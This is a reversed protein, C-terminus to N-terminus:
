YPTKNFPIILGADAIHVTKGTVEQVERQFRKADSNGDSLHILVINNVQSLDNAHLLDKCNDISLHSQIVRDRVFKPNEGDRVRQDLIKDCYNAEVIMNNLGSFRFPSYVTDTLFLVTGCEDHRILYGVPEPTDHIIKFAIVEFNGVSFGKYRSFIANHHEFTGMAEHEGPTAWVKIGAKLVDKVAKCHDGHSHTILCGAIRDIRYHLAAKIKDFRVGCEVILAEGNAAELIYSNGASNSNIIRLEM